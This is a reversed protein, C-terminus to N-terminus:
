KKILDIFKMRRGKKLTKPDKSYWDKILSYTGTHKDIKNNSCGECYLTESTVEGFLNISEMIKAGCTNPIVGKLGDM